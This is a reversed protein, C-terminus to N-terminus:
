TRESRRHAGDLLGDVIGQMQGLSLPKHHLAVGMAHLERQTEDPVDLRGTIMALPLRPQVELIRYLLGMGNVFPMRLDILVADPARARISEIAEAASEAFVVHYGARELSRAHPELIDPQDDVILITRGPTGAPM